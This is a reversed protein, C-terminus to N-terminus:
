FECSIDNVITFHFKSYCKPCEYRSGSGRVLESIDEGYRFDFSVRFMEEMNGGEQLGQFCFVRDM